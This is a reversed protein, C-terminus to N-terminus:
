ILVIDDGGVWLSVDVGRSGVVTTGSLLLSGGNSPPCEVLIPLM